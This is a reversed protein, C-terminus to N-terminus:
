YSLLELGADTPLTKGEPVEMAFSSDKIAHNISPHDTIVRTLVGSSEGAARPRKRSSEAAKPQERGRVCCPQVIPLAPCSVGGAFLDGLLRLECHPLVAASAASTIYKFM